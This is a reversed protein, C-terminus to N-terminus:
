ERNISSYFEVPKGNTLFLTKHGWEGNQKELASHAIEAVQRLLWPKDNEDDPKKM